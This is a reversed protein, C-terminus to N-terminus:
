DLCHHMGRPFSPQVALPWLATSISLACVCGASPSRMVAVHRPHNDSCSAATSATVGSARPAIPRALFASQFNRVQFNSTFPQFDTDFAKFCHFCVCRLQEWHRWDHFGPRPQTSEAARAHSPLRDRGVRQWPHCARRLIPQLLVNLQRSQRWTSPLTSLGRLVRPQM